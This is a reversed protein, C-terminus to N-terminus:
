KALIYILAVLLIVSEFADMSIDLNEPLLGELRKEKIIEWIEPQLEKILLSPARVLDTAIKQLESRNKESKLKELLLITNNALSQLREKQLSAEFPNEM